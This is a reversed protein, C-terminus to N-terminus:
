DIKKRFISSYISDFRFFTKLGSFYGIKMLKTPWNRTFDAFDQIFKSKTFNRANPRSIEDFFRETYLNLGPSDLWAKLTAYVEFYELCVLFYVSLFLQLFNNKNFIAFFLRFKTRFNSSYIFDLGYFEIFDIIVNFLTNKNSTKEM